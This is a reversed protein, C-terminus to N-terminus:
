AYGDAERSVCDSNVVTEVTKGQLLALLTELANAKLQALSRESYFAAHPTLLVREHEILAQLPAPEEQVVDLLAMSVGGAQLARLLADTDVIGGRATNVLTAGHKMRSFAADNMLHATDPTLPLHLSLIDATELLSDLTVGTAIGEACREVGPDYFCIRYGLAAARRALARGTAGYGVVGLVTDACPRVEGTHARWNWGGQRTHGAYDFLKRQAFLILALAHEAVEEVGVSGINACVIGRASLAEVDVDDLGITAKVLARCRHMRAILPADIVVSHFAIIGDAKALQEDSPRFTVEVGYHRYESGPGYEGPDVYNVRQSDIMLINM